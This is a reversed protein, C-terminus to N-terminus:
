SFSIKGSRIDEALAPYPAQSIVKENNLGENKFFTIRSFESLIFKPYTTYKERSEEMLETHDNQYCVTIDPREHVWRPFFATGHTRKENLMFNLVVDTGTPETWSVKYVGEVLKVIDAKQDRVWRGAVMGSHIRYDVTNENKIYVEYEWGNEYTYIIHSGLFDLSDKNGTVTEAGQLPRDSSRDDGRELITTAATSGESGTKATITIM